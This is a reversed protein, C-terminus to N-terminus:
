WRRSAAPTSEMKSRMIVSKKSMDVKRRRPVILHFSDELDDNEVVKIPQAAVKPSEPPKETSDPPEDDVVAQQEFRKRIRVSAKRGPVNKQSNAIM